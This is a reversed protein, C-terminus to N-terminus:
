WCWGCLGTTCMEPWGPSALVLPVKSFFMIISNHGGPPIFGSGGASLSALKQLERESRLESRM